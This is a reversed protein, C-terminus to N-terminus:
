QSDGTATIGVAPQAEKAVFVGVRNGRRPVFQVFDGVSVPERLDRKDARFFKGGWEIQICNDNKSVSRVLGVVKLNAAEPEMQQFTAALALCDSGTMSRAADQLAVVISNAATSRETLSLNVAVPAGIAIAKAIEGHVLHRHAELLRSFSPGYSGKISLERMPSLEPHNSNSIWCDALYHLAHVMAVETPNSTNLGFARALVPQPEFISRRYERSVEEVLSRACNHDFHKAFGHSSQIGWVKELTEAEVRTVPLVRTPAHFHFEVSATEPLVQRAFVYLGLEILCRMLERHLNDEVMEDQFLSSRKGGSHATVTESHKGGISIPVFLVGFEGLIEIVNWLTTPLNKRREEKSQKRIAPYRRYIEENVERPSVGPPYVALFGGVTLKKEGSEDILLQVSWPEDAKEEVPKEVHGKWYVSFEERLLLRRLRRAYVLEIAALMAREFSAFAEDILQETLGMQLTPKSFATIINGYPRLLGTVRRRQTSSFLIIPLDADIIAALRPLLTLSDIYQEDNRTANRSGEIALKCWDELRQLESEEVGPWDGPAVSNLNNISRLEHILDLFFTAEVTLSAREFLRLDLFLVDVDHETDFRLGGPEKRSAKMTELLEATSDSSFLEAQMKGIQWAWGGEGMSSHRFGLCTAVFTAWDHREQDDDVLLLRLKGRAKKPLESHLVTAADSIAKPCTRPRRIAKVNPLLDLTQMLRM